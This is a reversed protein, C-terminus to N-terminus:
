ALSRDIQGTIVGLHATTSTTDWPITYSQEEAMAQSCNCPPSQRQTRPTTDCIAAVTKLTMYAERSQRSMKKSWCYAKHGGDTRAVIAARGGRCVKIYTADLWLYSWEGELPRNLFADVREGIEGCLRSVQSKSVGTVEMAKVLDDVSRTSLGQVYTVM